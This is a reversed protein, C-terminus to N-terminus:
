EDESTNDPREAVYKHAPCFSEYKRVKNRDDDRTVYSKVQENCYKAPNGQMAPLLVWNCKKRLNGTVPLQEKMIYGGMVVSVPSFLIHFLVIDSIARFTDLTVIQLVKQM